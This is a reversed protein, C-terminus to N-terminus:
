ALTNNVAYWAQLQQQLQPIFQQYCQELHPINAEFLAFATARDTLYTSRHVLGGFSKEIGWPHQYNYLWNQAQMRLFMPQFPAPLLHFHRDLTAYAFQSFQFLEDATAFLRPDNAVFYDFAVDVFAGAYLRYHPRFIAKAEQIAAHSDTYTDILRHLRIGQQVDAAYLYQQKGKVMDSILNGVLWAPRQFSFFAHALYNM